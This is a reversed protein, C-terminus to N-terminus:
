KSQHAHSPTRKNFSLTSDAPPTESWKNKRGPEKGGCLWPQESGRGGTKPGRPRRPPLSGHSRLDLNNHKALAGEWVGLPRDQRRCGAKVSVTSSPGVWHRGWLGQLHSHRHGWPHWPKTVISLASRPSCSLSLTNDRWMSPPELSAPLLM